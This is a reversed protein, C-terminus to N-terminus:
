CVSKEKANKAHHEAVRFLHFSFVPFLLSPLINSETLLYYMAIIIVYLIFYFLFALCIGTVKAYEIQHDGAELM